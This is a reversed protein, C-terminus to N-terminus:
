KLVEMAKKVTLFLQHLTDEDLTDRAFEMRISNYCGSVHLHANFVDDGVERRFMSSPGNKIYEFLWSLAEESGDKAVFANNRDLHLIMKDKIEKWFLEGCYFEYDFWSPNDTTKLYEIYRPDSTDILPM